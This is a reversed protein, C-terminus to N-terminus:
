GRRQVEAPEAAARATALAALRRRAAPAGDLGVAAAARETLFHGTLRLANAFEGPGAPGGLRLTPPLALLKEAYPAGAARSVARGSRPSVYILEQTTGTAACSSLDLGYGLTELLRLEWAAYVGPWLDPAAFADFLEVTPGYLEPQPDREPLFSSLLACASSLAALALPDDFLAGARSRIPEARFTGLQDSLRARWTLDLQAGPERIAARKRAGGGHVLGRHRGREAAFVELIAGSEGHPRAQLLIGVDRWEVM